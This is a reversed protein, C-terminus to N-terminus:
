IKCPCAGQQRHLGRDWAPRRAFAIKAAFTLAIIAPSGQGGPHKGYKNYGWCLLTSDEASIGCAHYIGVSVASFKLGGALPTPLTVYTLLSIDPKFTIGWCVITSDDARIACTTEGGASIMSFQLGTNVRTPACIANSTELSIGCAGSNCYGWCYASGTDKDLACTHSQGLTIQSWTRGGVVEKPTRQSTDKLSEGIGLQCANTNGRCLFLNSTTFALWM